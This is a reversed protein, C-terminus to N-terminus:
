PKALAAFQAMAVVIFDRVSTGVAKALRPDGSLNPKMVFKASPDLWLFMEDKTAEVANCRVTAWKAFKDPSGKAKLNVGMEDITIVWTLGGRSTEAHFKFSKARVVAKLRAGPETKLVITSTPESVLQRGTARIRRGVDNGTLLYAPGAFVDVWENAAERQWQINGGMNTQLETGAIFDSGVIVLKPDGPEIASAAQGSVALGTWGAGNTPEVECVLFKDVDAEEPVYDTDTAAPIREWDNGDGRFWQYKATAGASVQARCRVISGVVL